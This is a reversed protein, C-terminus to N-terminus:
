HEYNFILILRVHSMIESGRQRPDARFRSYHLRRNSVYLGAIASASLRAALVQLEYAALTIILRCKAMSEMQLVM